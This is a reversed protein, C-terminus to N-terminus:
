SEKELSWLRCMIKNATSILFYGYYPLPRFFLLVVRYWSRQEQDQGPDGRLPQRLLAQDGGGAARSRPIVRCAALFVRPMRCTEARRAVEWRDSVTWPHTPVLTASGSGPDPAKKVGPDPIRFPHLFDPIFLGSWIVSFKSVMKQTLISLNKSTSGPDPISFIRDQIFTGSGCCQHTSICVVNRM